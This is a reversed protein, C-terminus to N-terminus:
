VLINLANLTKRLGSPGTFLTTKFGLEHAPVLNEPRDDVFFTEEARLRYKELLHQYIGPEPKLRKIEASIVLGDFLKFFRYRRCVKEFASLHFNSLAYLRYDAKKLEELIVVTADIPILINEWSSFVLRVDEELGPLRRCITREAEGATLTGRDLEVWLDSQFIGSNLRRCKAPDSFMKQLYTEPKFELLVNGLDFVINKIM